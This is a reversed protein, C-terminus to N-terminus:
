VEGRLRRLVPHESTDIYRDKFAIRLLDKFSTAPWDPEGLQGSAQFVDYAGLSMNAAIRVWGKTALDAAELPPAAGNTPGATPAPCIRNGSSSVGQRNIATAFM